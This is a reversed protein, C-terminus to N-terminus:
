YILSTYNNLLPIQLTNDMYILVCILENLDTIKVSALRTSKNM